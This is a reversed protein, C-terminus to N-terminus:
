NGGLDGEKSQNKKLGQELRGEKRKEVVVQVFDRKLSQKPSVKDDWQYLVNKKLVTYSECLAINIAIM